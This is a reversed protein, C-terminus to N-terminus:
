PTVCRVSGADEVLGSYANVYYIHGAGTKVQWVPPVQFREVPCYIDAFYGLTVSRIEEDASLHPSLRLIAEWWKLIPQPKATFGEPLLLMLSLNEVGGPGVTVKAPGSVPRGKESLDVGVSGWLPYSEYRQQFYVSWRCPGEAVVEDVSLQNVLSPLRSALFAEAIGQSDLPCSGGNGEQRYWLFGPDIVVLQGGPWRFIRTGPAGQFSEAEPPVLASVDLQGYSLTLLAMAAPAKAPPNGTFSIGAKLLQEEGSPEGGTGGPESGQGWWTGLLPAALFLDLILFAAILYTKLRSDDM